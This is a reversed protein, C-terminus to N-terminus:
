VNAASPAPATTCAFRRGLVEAPNPCQREYQLALYIRSRAEKESRASVWYSVADPDDARHLRYVTM